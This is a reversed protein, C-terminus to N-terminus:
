FRCERGSKRKPLYKFKDSLVCKRSCVFHDIINFYKACLSIKRINCIKCKLSRFQYGKINKFVKNMKQRHEVNYEGIIDQLEKPLSHISAMLKQEMEM